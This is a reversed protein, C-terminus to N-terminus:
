QDLPCLFLRPVFVSLWQNMQDRIGEIEHFPDYRMLRM